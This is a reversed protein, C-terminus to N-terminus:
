AVVCSGSSGTGKDDDVTPLEPAEDVNPKSHLTMVGKLTPLGSIGLYSLQYWINLEDPGVAKAVVTSNSWVYRPKIISPLELPFVEDLFEPAGDLEHAGLVLRSTETPNQVLPVKQVFLEQRQRKAIFADLQELSISAFGLTEQVFPAQAIPATWPKHRRLLNGILEPEASRWGSVFLALGHIYAIRYLCLHGMWVVMCPEELVSSAYARTFMRRIKDNQIKELDMNSAEELEHAHCIMVELM